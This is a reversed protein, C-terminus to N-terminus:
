QRLGFKYSKIGLSKKSSWRSTQIGAVRLIGSVNNEVEQEAM